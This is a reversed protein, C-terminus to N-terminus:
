NLTLNWLEIGKFFSYYMADIDEKVYGTLSLWILSHLLEMDKFSINSAMIVDNSLKEFGNSKISLEIDNTYFKIEFKKSNISDYNGSVSYYLKAWDYNKDGYIKTDGFYGRPDIFYCRDDVLLINSFTTDGHIISYETVEINNLQTKFTEIHKHHFPNINKRGNINIFEDNFHPLIPSISNVRDFTKNIYIENIDNRNSELKDIDHLTNLNDFILNLIKRKEQLPTNLEYLHKGNLKSIIFPTTNILKPIFDVKNNLFTYWRIEDEILNSYKKDICTKIVTDDKYEIKNFFRCNVSKSLLEEYRDIEGIEIINTYEKSDIKELNFNNLNGGVFSLSEDLRVLVNKDKILFIGLVGNKNTSEKILKKDEFKWRCKFESTIGITIDNSFSFDISKQLLLDSWIIAFPEDDELYEFAIKLGSSTSKENAKIFIIDNRKLINKVYSILIDSLYDVIIIIKKNNLYHLNNELITKGNYPLLCKPKNKTRHSMRSGIGGAQIIITEISKM